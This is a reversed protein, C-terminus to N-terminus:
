KDELGCNCRQKQELEAEAMLLSFRDEETARAEPPTSSLADRAEWYARLGNEGKPCNDDHQMVVKM